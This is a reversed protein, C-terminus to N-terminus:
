GNQKGYEDRPSEFEREIEADDEHQHNRENNM